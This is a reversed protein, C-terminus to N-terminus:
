PAAKQESSVKFGKREMKGWTPTMGSFHQYFGRIRWISNLQRYGFNELMATLLVLWLDQPRSFREVEDQELALSMVSILVGFSSIM